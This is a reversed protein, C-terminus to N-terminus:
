HYTNLKEGIRGPTLNSRLLEAIQLKYDPHEVPLNKDINLNKKNM